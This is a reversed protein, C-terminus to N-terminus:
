ILIYEEQLISQAVGTVFQNKLDKEEKVAVKLYTPTYGVQYEEGGINKREEILVTVEKGM